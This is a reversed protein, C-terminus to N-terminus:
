DFERLRGRSEANGFVQVIRMAARSTWFPKEIIIRREGSNLALREVRPDLNNGVFLQFTVGLITCLHVRGGSGRGSYPLMVLENEGPESAVVAMLMCHPPTPLDGLLFQRLEEQYPGLEIRASQRNPWNWGDLSSRWFISLAFTALAEHPISTPLLDFARIEGRSEVPTLLGLEEQLRFGESSGALYRLAAAEGRANLLHECAECLVAGVIERNVAVARGREAESGRSLHVPAGLEEDRCRRYVAQPILHSRCLVSVRRCLACVGAM